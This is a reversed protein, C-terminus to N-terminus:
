VALSATPITGHCSYLIQATNESSSSSTSLRCTTSSFIVRKTDYKVQAITLTGGSACQLGLAFDAPARVSGLKHRRGWCAQSNLIIVWTLEIENVFKKM